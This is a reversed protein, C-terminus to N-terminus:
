AASWPLAHRATSCSAHTQRSGGRVDFRRIPRCSSNAPRSRSSGDDHFRCSPRPSGDADAMFHELPDVAVPAGTNLDYVIGSDLLALGGDGSIAALSQPLVRPAGRDAGTVADILQVVTDSDTTELAIVDCTPSLTIRSRNPRSWLTAGESDVAVLTQWDDRRIWVFPAGARPRGCPTLTADIATVSGDPHVREVVQDPVRKKHAAFVDNQRRVILNDNDIAVVETSRLDEHWTPPARVPVCPEQAKSPCTLQPAAVARVSTPEIVSRQGGVVIVGRHDEVV